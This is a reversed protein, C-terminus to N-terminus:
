LERQFWNSIRDQLGQLLFVDSLWVLYAVSRSRNDDKCDRRLDTAM